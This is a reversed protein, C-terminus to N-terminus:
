RVQKFSILEAGYQFAEYRANKLAENYKADTEMARKHGNSFEYEYKHMM